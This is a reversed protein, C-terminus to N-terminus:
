YPMLYWLIVEEWACLSFPGPTMWSYLLASEPRDMTLEKRFAYAALRM